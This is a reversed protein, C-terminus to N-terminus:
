LAKVWRLAISLLLYSTWLATLAVMGALIAGLPFLWNLDVLVSSDPAPPADPMSPLLSVLAGAVTAVVLVFSNFVLVLLDAIHAAMSVIACLIAKLVSLM